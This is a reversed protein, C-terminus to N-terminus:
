SGKQRGETICSKLILSNEETFVTAVWRQCFSDDILSLCNFWSELKSLYVTIWSETELSVSHDSAWLHGERVAVLGDEDQVM